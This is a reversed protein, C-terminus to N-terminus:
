ITGYKLGDHLEMGYLCGNGHGIHCTYHVHSLHRLVRSLLCLASNSMRLYSLIGLDQILNVWAREYVNQELQEGM